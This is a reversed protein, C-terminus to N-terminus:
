QPLPCQTKEALTTLPIAGSLQSLDKFIWTPYGTIKKDICAQTQTQGDPLSCEIYPLFKVSSGFMAKQEQCHPCWFAGYFEAGSNKLCQAFQDYKGPTSDGKPVLILIVVVLVVIGVMLLIKNKTKM